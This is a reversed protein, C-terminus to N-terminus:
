IHILSLSLSPSYFYMGPTRFIVDADDLCDLYNTGLCFHVGANKLEEYVEGLATEDRKDALTVDIGKSCFLKILSRHSVGAGIFTVKRGRMEEFFRNVKTQM